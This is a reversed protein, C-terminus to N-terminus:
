SAPPEQKVERMRRGCAPCLAYDLAGVPGIKCDDCYWQQLGM